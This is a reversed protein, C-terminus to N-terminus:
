NPVDFGKENEGATDGEKCEIRLGNQVTPFNGQFSSPTVWKQFKEYVNKRQVVRSTAEKIETWKELRLKSM